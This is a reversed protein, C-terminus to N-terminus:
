VGAIAAFLSFNGKFNVQEGQPIFFSEGKKFQMGQTYLIGETVICIAHGSKAGKGPFVQEHGESRMYYLYFDDCPTQYYFWPSSDPTTVQPLYPNFTLINMLEPIDIFKPTLGGRLVNDSNAMLEVGIGSLYSHLIGAPIYIAQGPKLNFINLYLPSLVAAEGPNTQAFKKMLSWQQQSIGNGTKDIQIEMILNTIYELELASYNYLIRFFVQFLDANLANFLPNIIEKLQPIVFIFEYLSSYIDAPKRFAAMLTFESLACLVEPKHNPDKYNRTPANLGLNAEEERMFGEEAQEKNPHAQISLSKEVGLLKLLFPLDGSLEKLDTLSGNIEAQSPASKNTGMWLEAYPIGKTNEIDLFDPILHTSGWEYNKVQNRLRYIKEM